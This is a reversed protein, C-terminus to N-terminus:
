IISFYFYVIFSVSEPVYYQFRLPPVASSIASVASVASPALAHMSM